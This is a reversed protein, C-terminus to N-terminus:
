EVGRLGEQRGLRRTLSSLFQANPAQNGGGEGVFQDKIANFAYIDTRSYPVGGGHAAFYANIGQLYLDIDHLVARGRAGYALLAGTQKAVENEAQPSPTFSALNGILGVASLGPADIAALRGLYRAEGLLLGQDQAEIWGAAWTYDDYTTAYIYPVNYADRYVTVGAHPVSETTVPGPANQINLPEAKFDNVLDSPTVNDFLPTLANYMQAQQDANAPPPVSGYEGSPIIDRAIIAYDSAPPPQDAALAAPASVAAACLVALVIIPIRRM